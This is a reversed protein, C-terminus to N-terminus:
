RGARLIVAPRRFQCGMYALVAHAFLRIGPMELLAERACCVEFALPDPRSHRVRKGGALEFRIAGNVDTVRSVRFLFRIGPPLPELFPLCGLIPGLRNRLVQRPSIELTVAEPPADVQQSPSLAPAL